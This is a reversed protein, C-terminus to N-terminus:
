ATNSTQTRHKAQKVCKVSALEMQSAVPQAAEVLVKISMPSPGSMAHSATAVMTATNAKNAATAIMM